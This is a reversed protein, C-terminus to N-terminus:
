TFTIAFQDNGEDSPLPALKLPWEIIGQENQYSEPRRVQCSPASITVRHGARTDQQVAVAVKELTLAKDFPDFTALPVAEVQTSIVENSDVIMIEERGVLLRPQVDNGLDLTLSRMVMSVADITFTPTNVDTAVLPTKFASWDLTPLAALVPKSWLGTLTFRITPIAQATITVVATGRCGLVVQKNGGIWFYLAASEYAESVPSYEVSTDATVVEALGVARLLASIPPAVGATGGGVLEVDFEMVVRLGVPFMEQPGRYPREIERSVDEGEMPKCVINKALIAATPTPDVGYTTERKALLVKSRWRLAEPM